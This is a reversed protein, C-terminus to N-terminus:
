SALASRSLRRAVSLHDAFRGFPGQPHHDPQQREYHQQRGDLTLAWRATAKGGDSAATRLAGQLNAKPLLARDLRAARLIAQFLNAESLVVHSLDAESLDAHSLDAKRLYAGSLNAGKLNPIVSPFSRRWENWIAAGQQLQAVHEVNAM